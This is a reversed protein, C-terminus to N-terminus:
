DHYKKGSAHLAAVASHERERRRQAHSRALRLTEADQSSRLRLCAQELKETAALEPKQPIPM